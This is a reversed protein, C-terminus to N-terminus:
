PVKANFTCYSPFDAPLGAAYPSDVTGKPHAKLFAMVQPADFTAPVTHGKGHRCRIVDHGAATLMTTDADGMAEFKIMMGTMGWQDNQGGSLIVQPYANKSTTPPWTVNFGTDNAPNSLYGGSFTVVSALVDGRMVALLDSFVAGASFGVTHVRAEDVGYRADLCSLVEDFLRAERNTAADYVTLM